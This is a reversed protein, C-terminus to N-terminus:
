TDQIEMDVMNRICYRHMLLQTMLIRTNEVLPSVWPTPGDVKEIIGQKELQHLERTVEKHMHFPIRRAQQAVPPLPPTPGSQDIHPKVEVGKLRGIDYDRWLFTTTYANANVHLHSVSCDTM